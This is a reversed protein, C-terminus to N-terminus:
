KVVLVTDSDGGITDASDVSVTDTDNTSTTAKTNNGCSVFGMVCVAIFAWVLNKM